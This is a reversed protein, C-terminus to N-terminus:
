FQRKEHTIETWFFMALLILARESKTHKSTEQVQKLDDLAWLPNYVLVGARYVTAHQTAQPMEYEIM